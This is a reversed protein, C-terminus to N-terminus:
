NKLNEQHWGQEWSDLLESSAGFPKHEMQKEKLLNMLNKDFVPVSKKGAKFAEQGLQFAKQIDTPSFQM